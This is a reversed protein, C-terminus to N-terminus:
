NPGPPKLSKKEGDNAVSKEAFTVRRTNPNTQKQLETSLERAYVPQNSLLYWTVFLCIIIIAIYIARHQM